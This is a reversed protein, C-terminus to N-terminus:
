SFMKVKQPSDMSAFTEHMRALRLCCEVEFLCFVINRSYYSLAENVKEDAMLFLRATASLEPVENTTKADKLLYENIDHGLKLALMLACSYGELAGAQWLVEGVTSEKATISKFESIAAGYHELADLPSCIQMWM